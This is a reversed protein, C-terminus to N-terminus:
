RNYQNYLRSNRVANRHCTICRRSGDPRIRLNDGSLPHGHKCETKRANIGSVTHVSRLVNERPTVVELHAPNVCRRRKCLHDIQMGPPIRTSTWFEYFYRHAKIKKKNVDFYGYGDKDTTSTWLWCGSEAIEYREYLPKFARTAGM